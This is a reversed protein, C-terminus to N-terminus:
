NLYYLYSGGLLGGSKEEQRMRDNVLLWLAAIVVYDSETVEVLCKWHSGHPIVNKGRFVSCARQRGHLQERPAWERM